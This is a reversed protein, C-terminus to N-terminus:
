DLAIRGSEQARKHLRRLLAKGCERAIESRLNRGCVCRRVDHARQAQELVIDGKENGEAIEGSYPRHHHDRLTEGFGSIRGDVGSDAVQEAQGV